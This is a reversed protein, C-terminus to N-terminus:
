FLIKKKWFILKKNINEDVSLLQKILPRVFITKLIFIIM